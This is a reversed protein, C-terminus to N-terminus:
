SQCENKDFNNLIKKVEELLIEDETLIVEQMEVIQHLFKGEVSFGKVLGTKVYEVWGDNSLKMTGMWTGKPVSFGLATSKDMEPNDVIWSEVLCIDTANFQHQITVNAQNSDKLYKFAIDEITQVSFAAEFYEDTKPNKRLMWFEPILIPGVVIRKEKDLITFKQVETESFYQFDSEIAPKEVLSIAFVSNLDDITFYIRQLEKQM